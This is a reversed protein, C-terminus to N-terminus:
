ARSRAIVGTRPRLTEATAAPLHPDQLGHYLPQISRGHNLRLCLGMRPLRRPAPHLRSVSPCLIPILLCCRWGPALPLLNWPPQGSRYPFEGSGQVPQAYSHPSALPYCVRAPHLALSVVRCPRRPRAASARPHRKLGPPGPPRPGTSALYRAITRPTM